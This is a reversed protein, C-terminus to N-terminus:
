KSHGTFPLGLYIQPVAFRMMQAGIHLAPYQVELYKAYGAIDPCLFRLADMGDSEINFRAGRYARELGVRAADYIRHYPVFAVTKPYVALFESEDGNYPAQWFSENWAQAEWLDYITQPQTM